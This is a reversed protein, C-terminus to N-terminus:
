APVGPRVRRQPARRPVREGKRDAPAPAAPSWRRPAGRVAGALKERIAATRPSGLPWFGRRSARVEANRGAEGAPSRGLRGRRQRAAAAVWRERCCSGNESPSLFPLSCSPRPLSRHSSRSARSRPSPGRSIRLRSPPSPAGRPPDAAGRPHPSRAASLSPTWWGPSGVWAASRPPPLPPPPPPARAPGRGSGPLRRTAARTGAPGAERAGCLRVYPAGREARAAGGAERRRGCLCRRAPTCGGRQVACGSGRPSPGAAGPSCVVSCSPPQAFSWAPAGNAGPPGCSQRPLCPSSSAWGNRDPAGKEGCGRAEREVSAACSSGSGSGGGGGFSSGGGSGGQSPATVHRPGRPAQPRAPARARARPLFRSESPSQSDLTASLANLPLVRRARERSALVRGVILVQRAAPFPHGSHPAPSERRRAGRGRKRRQAGRGAAAGAGEQEGREELRQWRNASLSQRGHKWSTDPRPPCPPCHPSSPTARVRPATVGDTVAATEARSRAAGAVASAPFRHSGCASKIVRWRPAM